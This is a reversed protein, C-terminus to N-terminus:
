GFTVDPQEPKGPVVGQDAEFSHLLQGELGNACSVELVNFLRICDFILFLFCLCICDCHPSFLQVSGWAWTYTVASVLGDLPLGCGINRVLCFAALNEQQARHVIYWIMVLCAKTPDYIPICPAEVGRTASPRKTVGLWTYIPRLYHGQSM